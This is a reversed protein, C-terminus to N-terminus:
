SQPWPLPLWGGIHCSTRCVPRVNTQGFENSGWAVVQGDARLAMSHTDGASVAVANTLDLPIAIQGGYGNNWARWTSNMGWGVVGSNAVVLAAEPSTVTGLTNGVVVRYAGADDVDVDSIQLTPTTAGNIRGGDLLNTGRCQWQFSSATAQVKFAVTQRAIAFFPGPHSRSSRPVQCRSDPLAAPRPAM